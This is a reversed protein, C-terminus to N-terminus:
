LLPAMLRSSISLASKFLPLLPPPKSAEEEEWGFYCVLDVLFITKMGRRNKTRAVTHLLKAESSSCSSGPM